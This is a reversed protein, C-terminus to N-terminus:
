LCGSYQCFIALADLSCPSEVYELIHEIIGFGCSQKFLLVKYRYLIDAALENKDTRFVIREPIGCFVYASHVVAQSGARMGAFVRHIEIFVARM